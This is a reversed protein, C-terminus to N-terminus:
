SVAKLSPKGEELYTLLKKYNIKGNPTKPLSDMLWIHRPAKYPELNQQCHQNIRNEYAGAGKKVAVFVGIVAGGVEDPIPVA